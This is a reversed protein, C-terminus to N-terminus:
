RPSTSRTASGEGIKCTSTPCSPSKGIVSLKMSDGLVNGRFDLRPVDPEGIDISFAIRAGAIKGNEIKAVSDRDRACTRGCFIFTGVIKGGEDNLLLVFNTESPDLTTVFHGSWKGSVDNPALAAQRENSPTLPPSISPFSTPGSSAVGFVFLVGLALQCRMM